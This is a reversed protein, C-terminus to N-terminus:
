IFKRTRAMRPFPLADRVHELKCIWWTLRDIGMGFGSHPVSGYRRLDLYWEYDEPNFGERRIRETLKEVNDEREGGTAMEGYGEPALLDVTLGTGPKDPDEKVYFPKKELPYGVMFIPKDLNRTLMYEEDGGIDDGIRIDVGLNRLKGIIQEYTLREFPPEIRELESPDRGIIKLEERCNEAVSRCIHSTLEEEFKILGELNMWAAEGELHWFECLHRRTRSKEARFSPALCWVKELSFIMIELYLQSSQTLYADKDFYKLKFLTAGGECATTVIIPPSVEFWGEQLFFERSARLIEHRIKFISQYRLGRIALHRKEMLVASSHKKKGLPYPSEALHTICIDRVIFERGRPARSEERWAGHLIISSEQTLKEARRWVEEDVRDRKVVCQTVGMGNRLDIFIIKGHTRKKLIWGRLTETEGIRRM